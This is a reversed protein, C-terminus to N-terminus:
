SSGASRQRYRESRDNTDLVILSQEVPLYHEATISLPYERMLDLNDHISGAITNEIPVIASGAMSSAISEFVKRFTNYGVLTDDSEAIQSAAINSFSGESGLYSVHAM